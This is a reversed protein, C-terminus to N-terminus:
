TGAPNDTTIAAARPRRWYWSPGLRQYQRREKTWYLSNETDPPLYFIELGSALECVVPHGERSVCARLALVRRGADNATRPPNLAKLVDILEAAWTAFAARAQAPPVKFLEALRQRGVSDRRARRELEHQASPWDSYHFTLDSQGRYGRVDVVEACFSIAYVYGLVTVDRELVPRAVRVTLGDFPALDARRNQNYFAQATQTDLSVPDRDPTCALLASSFLSAALGRFSFVLHM